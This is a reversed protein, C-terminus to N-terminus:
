NRDVKNIKIEAMQMLSRLALNAGAEIDQWSTWEAPSHSRGDKSPVFIMGVNAISAIIQSDHAAGSPMRMAKLGLKSASEDIINVIRPDCKVPDIKSVREFEFMLGKKRAINSLVKRFSDELRGLVEPDTDRVDLSFEASGSVTNAAGPSLSVNGVTARSKESGDEELVREIEHAFDALGMFADQRMDMPTTGAHNANGILQAKWRFLGTIEEVIGVEKNLNNLVPGQEIHVELFSHISGPERRAELAGLPDMGHRKMEETLKVGNLDEAALISEPTLDGCLAQAGFMGGFRGEEDSTAIVEFPYEPRFGEEIIRRVAELSILAGLSGDLHGGCPVSDLHSGTMVCPRDNYSPWHGIVNGAGDMRIAMGLDRMKKMFWQRAQMDADTFAMRYIGHDEKHRGIESLEKLEAKLRPLNISPLLHM